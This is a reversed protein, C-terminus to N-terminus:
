TNFVSHTVCAYRTAEIDHMIQKRERKLIDASSEFVHLSKLTLFSIDGPLAPRKCSQEAGVQVIDLRPALTRGFLSAAAPDEPISM